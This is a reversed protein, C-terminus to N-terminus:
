GTIKNKGEEMAAGWLGQKEQVGQAGQGTYSSKHELRWDPPLTKQARHGLLLILARFCHLKSWGHGSESLM